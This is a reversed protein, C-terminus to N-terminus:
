VTIVKEDLVAGACLLVNELVCGERIIVNDMVVCNTLRVRSEFKCNDGITCARLNVKLEGV